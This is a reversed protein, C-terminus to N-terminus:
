VNYCFKERKRRRFNKENKEKYRFKKGVELQSYVYVYIFMTSEHGKGVHSPPYIVNSQAFSSVAAQILVWKLPFIM